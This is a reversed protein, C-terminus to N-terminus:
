PCHSRIFVQKAVLGAVVARLYHRYAWAGDTMVREIRTIGHSAFYAAARTLFGACTTGKEDTLIERTRWASTAMSWRISTTSGSGPSATALSTPPGAGM